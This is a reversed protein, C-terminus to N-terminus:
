RTSKDLVMWGPAHVLHSAVDPPFCRCGGQAVLRATTLMRVARKDSRPEKGGDVPPGGDRYGLRELRFRFRNGESPSMHLREGAGALASLEALEASGMGGAIVRTSTHGTMNCGLYASSSALYLIMRM